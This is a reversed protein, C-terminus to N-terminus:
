EKSLNEWVSPLFEKVQDYLGLQILEDEIREQSAVEIGDMVEAVLFEAFRVRARRLQQRTQDARATKGIKESLRAALEDSTEDPFDTRLKLVTYAISGPHTKQYDELRNWTLDLVQRQWSDEWTAESEDDSPPAVEAADSDVTKRVKKKAWMNRTMNRVAVKLLDRFRGKSPDAGAFDGQLLRVMVDQTLDDAEDESRTMARVYGRIAASYRMVLYQRAEAGGAMSEGHARQVMSWRTPQADFRSVFEDPNPATM